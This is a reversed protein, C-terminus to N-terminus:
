TEADVESAWGRVNHQICLGISHAEPATRMPLEILQDALRNVHVRDFQNDDLGAIADQLAAIIPLAISDAVDAPNCERMGEHRVVWRAHVERTWELLEERTLVPLERPYIWDVILSIILRTLAFPLHLLSVAFALPWLALQVVGPLWAMQGVFWDMADQALLFPREWSAPEHAPRM